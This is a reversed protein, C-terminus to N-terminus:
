YGDASLFHSLEEQSLHQTDQDIWIQAELYRADRQCSIRM